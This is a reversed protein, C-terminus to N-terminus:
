SHSREALPMFVPFNVVVNGDLGLLLESELRELCVQDRTM